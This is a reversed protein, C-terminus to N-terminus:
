PRGDDESIFDPARTTLFVHFHHPDSAGGLYDVDITACDIVVDLLVLHEGDLNGAARQTHTAVAQKSFVMILPWARRVM